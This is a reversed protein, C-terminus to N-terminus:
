RRCAVPGPQRLAQCLDADVRRHDLDDTVAGIIQQGRQAEHAVRPHGQDHGAAAEAGSGIVERGLDDAAEALALHDEVLIELRTDM